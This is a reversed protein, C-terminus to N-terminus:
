RSWVKKKKTQALIKRYGPDNRYHRFTDTEGLRSCLNPTKFYANMESYVKLTRRSNFNEQRMEANSFLNHRLM